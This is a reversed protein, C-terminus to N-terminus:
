TADLSKAKCFSCQCNMFHKAVSQPDKCVGGSGWTNRWSDIDQTSIFKRKNDKICLDCIKKLCTYDTYFQTVFEKEMNCFSCRENSSKKEELKSMASAVSEGAAQMVKNGFPHDPAYASDLIWDELEYMETMMKDATEAVLVKLDDHELGAEKLDKCMESIGAKSYNSVFEMFFTFKDVIRSFRNTPDKIGSRRKSINQLAKCTAEITSAQRELARLKEPSIQQMPAAM